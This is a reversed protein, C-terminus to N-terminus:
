AEFRRYFLWLGGLFMLLGQGMLVLINLGVDAQGAALKSFADTSWYIMSFQAVNRSVSVGFAGGLVAFAITLVTGILNGQEPTRGLGILLAGFGTGALAAGIGVLVLALFNTGWISLFRGAILSGVLSFTIYLLFLQVLSNAFTGTLKGLLIIVRPTPTLLLRQMTGERREVFINTAGTQASLLMFFMAQGSGVLTLFGLAAPPIAEGSATQPEIRIPPATSFLTCRITSEISSNNTAAALALGLAPNRSARDLFIDGNAALTIAGTTIQDAMANVLTHVVEASTQRGSNAYVDITATEVRPHDPTYALRQTFDPPIIIAATYQGSDVRAKADDPNDLADAKILESVSASASEAPKCDAGAFSTSSDGAGPILADAIIQGYNQGSAGHDLNVVAVPIDKISVRNGFVLGIIMSVVFPAAVMLLVLNRDSYTVYLERWVIALFKYM